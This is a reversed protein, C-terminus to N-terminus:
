YQKTSTHEELLQICADEILGYVEHYAAISRSWPDPVDMDAGPFSYNLLLKVKQPQYRTGAIYRMDRMVDTAMPIVLDFEAMDEARFRRSRQASIDIGNLQSVMQSMPHPGEGNHLGNTGASDVEWDLGLAKCKASLVGEAIPSRCINGLCVMLVKMVM